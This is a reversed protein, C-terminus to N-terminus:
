DCDGYYLVGKLYEDYNKWWNIKVGHRPATIVLERTVKVRNKGAAVFDVGPDDPEFGKISDKTHNCGFLNVERHGSSLAWFIALHLCTDRAKYGFGLKGDVAEKLHGDIDQPELWKTRDYGVYEGLGPVFNPKHLETVPYCKNPPNFTIGVVRAASFHHLNILDSILFPYCSFALETQYIYAAHNLGITTRGSFFSKPYTEISANKGIIDIM